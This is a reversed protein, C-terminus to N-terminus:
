PFLLLNQREPKYTFCKPHFYFSLSPILFGSVANHLPLIKHGQPPEAKPWITWKFGLVEGFTVPHGQSTVKRRQAEDTDDTLFFFFLLM